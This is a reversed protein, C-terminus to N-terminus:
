GEWPLIYYTSATSGLLVRKVPPATWQRICRALREGKERGDPLDVKNLFAITKARPPTGKLIGEPHALLRAVHHPVIPSGMPINLLKAAIEPRFVNEESLTKGLADLGVVAVVLSTASPIVPETANPAKLPKQRSGDAEVLITVGPRSGALEELWQPPVGLLKRGPLRESALTVHRYRFLLSNLSAEIEKKDSSVLLYPTQIPDPELIRTTTTSVVQGGLEALERALWFMLSTKGGGGVLSVMEGAEVELAQVLGCGKM